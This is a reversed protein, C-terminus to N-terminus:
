SAGGAGIDSMMPGLYDQVINLVGGGLIMGLGAYKLNVGTKRNLVLAVGVIAGYTIPTNGITNNLGPLAQAAVAGIATAGVKMGLTKQTLGGSERRAIRSRRKAVPKRRTKRRKKKQVNQYLRAGSKTRGVRIYRSKPM